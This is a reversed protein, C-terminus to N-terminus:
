LLGLAKARAVAQTRRAVGLKGNIRRAHTKVTHLSIFLQEAVEQNSCGQAILGLVTLERCSLLADPAVPVSSDLPLEPSAQAEFWGCHYNLQQRLAHGMQRAYLAAANDTFTSCAAAYSLWLESALAQRGQALAQDLLERLAQRVDNGQELDLRLLLHQLRPVLEPFLPPPLMAQVRQRHKLVRSVAERAREHHGQWVWLQSSALLLVGRYLSDAVRQRQMLREAEALLAFAAPIDQQRAALEALGLYGHFASPDGYHLAEDLGAQLRKAAEELHGQRLALRGLRLSIRGWVPTQRLLPADLQDRVRLMLVQARAFEGRSELLLAHDLELLAEFVASGQLRAQKLAAYGLHQAEELHGEGIAMQTLISRCLLAQAWAGEPLVDLAELLHTRAEAACGRGYAAIGRLAQWQAFLERMREADGRPQFRELQDACAQAEDLRGVLLLAWANLLILRPTSALLSEPLEGRWRLILALDQGQLLQEETFRELFSAAAEPQGAKLAHELATCVDGQAAFWQSAHL